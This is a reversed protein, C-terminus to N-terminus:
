QRHTKRYASPTQGTAARFIKTFYNYDSYGVAEAVDSIPADGQQLM